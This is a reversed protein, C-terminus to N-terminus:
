KPVAKHLAGGITDIRAGTIDRIPFPINNMSLYGLYAMLACEKFDILEPEPIEISIMHRALNEQLLRTLLKHHAGGGTVLIRTDRPLMPTVHDTIMRSIARTVSALLDSTNDTRRDLWNIWSDHVEANSLGRPRGEMFPFMAQLEVAVEEIVTGSSALRGGDDHALGLRQALHNLPQNCPGIDWAKWAGDVTRISINAIGGLNLYGDYGTFLFRDAVPAFPAGQGGAAVDASRFNTITDLGTVSTIHAGSGIQTTFGAAPDHFITHGHSAIYDAQLRDDDIWQKVAHGIFVGLEADLQMLQYGSLLHATKLNHVWAESFPITKCALIKWHIPNHTVDIWLLGMDLGDLSSGSMIGIM